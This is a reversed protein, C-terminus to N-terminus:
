KKRAEEGIPQVKQAYRGTLCSLCLDRKRIGIADVLDEIPPYYLSDAGIVSAVLGNVQDRPMDKYPRAILSENYFDIGFYCESIIPPCSLAIHVEKAGAERLKRITSAMTTGRVLSDDLLLIKKGNVVEAIVNLKKNIVAERAQQDKQMFSRKSEYRDRILGTRIPIGTARNYGYAISKGAEPVPVIFDVAPRYDNAIRIGLNERALYVNTGEFESGPSCMYVWQFMCFQRQKSEFLQHTLVENRDIVLMEGPAVPRFTADLHEKSFTISESAVFFGKENQGFFLPMYGFRDRTAILKPNSGGVLIALSYSGVVKEMDEKVSEFIGTDKGISKGFLMGLARTDSIGEQEIRLLSGLERDNAINGNHSIAYQLGSETALQIPQTNKMSSASSTIYRTHGILMSGQMDSDFLKSDRVLSMEKRTTLEKSGDLFAVGHSDEGRHQLTGLGVRAYPRLDTDKDKLAVGLVGCAM